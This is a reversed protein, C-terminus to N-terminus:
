APQAAGTSLVAVLAEEILINGSSTRISCAVKYVVGALGGTLKQNVASVVITSSGSILGSPTADVGSFVTANTIATTITEGIALRSLFDFSVTITEAVLKSAQVYTSM